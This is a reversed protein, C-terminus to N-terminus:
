RHTYVNMHLASYHIKSLKTAHIKTIMQFMEKVLYNQKISEFAIKEMKRKQALVLFPRVHLKVQHCYFLAIYLAYVTGYFINFHVHTNIPM